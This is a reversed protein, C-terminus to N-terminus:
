LNRRYELVGEEVIMTIAMLVMLIALLTVEDSHIDGLSPKAYDSKHGVKKFGAFWRM